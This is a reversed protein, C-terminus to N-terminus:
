KKSLDHLMKTPKAYIPAYISDMQAKTYTVIQYDAGSTAYEWDDTAGNTNGDLITINNGDVALVIGVHNRSTASFVSGVVPMSGKPGYVFYQPHRQTLASVWNDGNGLYNFDLKTGYLDLLAGASYWTCQGIPYTNLPAQWLEKKSFNPIGDVSGGYGYGECANLANRNRVTDYIQNYTDNDYHIGESDTKLDDKIKSYTDVYKIKSDLGAKMKQNFSEIDSNKVYRSKADDVPNISMFIIDKGKWAGNALENLKSLYRDANSIDNVGLNFVITDGDQLQANAQNLGTSMFWNYGQGSEAIFVDNGGSVAGKMGVTRSDGIWVVRGTIANGTGGTGKLLDYWKQAAGGRGAVVAEYSDASVEVIKHFLYATQVPDKSTYFGENKLQNHYYGDTFAEKWLYDLQFQLDDWSKGQRAAEAFLADKRGFSWQIIGHGEGNSEIAGPDFSSEREINGLVGSAAEDSLGKSTLFKFISRANQEMTGNTATYMSCEDSMKKYGDDNSFVVILIAFTAIVLLIPVIYPALFSAIASTAKGVVQVVTTVIKKITGGIAKGAKSGVKISSKVLKVSSKGVKKGAKYTTKTTTKGVTKAVKAGKKVVKKQMESQAFQIGGEGEDQMKSIKGSTSSIGKIAKGSVVATKGIVTATKSIKGQSKEFQFTKKNLFKGMKKATSKIKGDEAIASVEEAGETGAEGEIDVKKGAQTKIGTLISEKNQQSNPTKSKLPDVLTKIGLLPSSENKSSVIDDKSSITNAKISDTKVDTKSLNENVLSGQKSSNNEPSIGENKTPVTTKIGIVNFSEKPETTEMTIGKPSAYDSKPTNSATAGIELPQSSDNELNLSRSNGEQPNHRRDNWRSIAKASKDLGSGSKELGKGVNASTKGITTQTDKKTEQSM